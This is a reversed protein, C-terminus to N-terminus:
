FKWLKKAAETTWWQGCSNIKAYPYVREVENVIFPDKFEEVSKLCEEQTIDESLAYGCLTVVSSNRCGIKFSLKNDIIFKQLQKVKTVRTEKVIKAM